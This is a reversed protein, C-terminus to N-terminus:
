SKEPKKKCSNQCLSQMNRSRWGDGFCHFFRHIFDIQGDGVYDQIRQIVTQIDTVPLAANQIPALGGFPDGPPSSLLNDAVLAQVINEAMLVLISATQAALLKARQVPGHDGVGCTGARHDDEAL